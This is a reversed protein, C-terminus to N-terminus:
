PNLNKIWSEVWVTGPASPRSWQMVIKPVPPNGGNPILITTYPVVLTGTASCGSPLPNADTLTFTTDSSLTLIQKRQEIRGGDWSEIREFTTVGSDTLIRIWIDARGESVATGYQDISPLVYYFGDYSGDTLTGGVSGTAAPASGTNSVVGNARGGPAHHLDTVCAGGSVTQSVSATGGGVFNADGNFLALISHTGAPLTSLRFTAVGNVLSATPMTGTLETQLTVSGTVAPPNGSADFPAVTATFTVEQGVMSPNPSSTLTTRTKRAVVQTIPASTSTEHDINGSYTATISHTGLPLNTMVFTAVGSLVSVSAGPPGSDITLRAMGTIPTGTGAGHAASVRATLILEDGLGSPSGTTTLVTTTQNDPGSTVVQTLAASASSAFVADGGYAAVVSSTGIPTMATTLTAVGGTLAVTTGPAGNFSFGVTGSPTGSGGAVTATYTVMGGPAAPNPTSTLTTTSTAMGCPWGCWQAATYFAVTPDALIAEAALVFAANHAPTRGTGGASCTCLSTAGDCLFTLGPISGDQVTFSGSCSTGVCALNSSQDPVLCQLRRVYPIVVDILSFTTTYGVVTPSGHPASGIGLWESEGQHQHVLVLDGAPDAGVPLTTPMTYTVRVPTAFTVGEPELRFVQGVAVTDAPAATAPADVRTVSFQTVGTVAGAPVEISLAGLTLTGGTAGISTTATPAGGDTPGADPAGADSPDSKAPGSCSNAAIAITVCLLLNKVM